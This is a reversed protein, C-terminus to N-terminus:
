FLFDWDGSDYAKMLDIKIACRAPGSDRQYNRVLEQMLLINDSISRGKVFAAQAKNIIHPLVPQLRSALIKTIAKYISNCYAIPRYEKMSRPCSTKPILTLATTNVDRLLVGTQFFSLVAATVEDGVM